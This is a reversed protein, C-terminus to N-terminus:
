NPTKEALQQVSVNGGVACFADLMEEESGATAAMTKNMMVAHMFEGFDIEKSGDEDVQLTTCPCPTGTHTTHTSYPTHM